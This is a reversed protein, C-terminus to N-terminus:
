EGVVMINRLLTEFEGSSGEIRVTRDRLMSGKSIGKIKGSESAHTGNIVYCSKGEGLAFVKEVGKKGVAVSDNVKVKNDSALVSGDHLRISIKGGRTVYKGVVKFVQRHKERDVKELDFTGSKGSSVRYTEGTPKLHIIDGFGVPYREEKVAKGNIEVEGRNLLYRVDRSTAEMMKEKLVTTLAINSKSNHRGAMPKAVYKSSKRGIKMYRTSALRRIHRTNGKSAM